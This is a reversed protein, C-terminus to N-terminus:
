EHGMRKFFITTLLILYFLMRQWESRTFIDENQHFITMTTGFCSITCKRQNIIRAYVINTTDDFFVCVFYFHKTENVCDFVLNRTKRESPCVFQERCCQKAEIHVCFIHTKKNRRDYRMAANRVQIHTSSLSM